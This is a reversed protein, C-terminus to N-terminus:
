FPLDALDPECWHRRAEVSFLRERSWHEFLWDSRGYRSSMLRDLVETLSTGPTAADLFSNTARLSALTITEHYGETDSNKVGTATNYARILNPMDARADMAESRRLALAVAFHARHTWEPKPLTRDVFRATLREIETDKALPM